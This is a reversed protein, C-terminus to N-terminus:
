LVGKAIRHLDTGPLKNSLHQLLRKATAHRNRSDLNSYDAISRRLTKLNADHINLAREMQTLYKYHDELTRLYRRLAMIPIPQRQRMAQAQNKNKLKKTIEPDGSVIALMNALDNNIMRVQDFTGKALTQDVYSKVFSITEERQSLLALALLSLYIRETVEPFTFRQLDSHRRIVKGESVYKLFPTLM